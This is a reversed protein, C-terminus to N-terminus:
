NCVGHTLSRRRRRGNNDLAYAVRLRDLPNVPAPLQQNGGLQSTSANSTHHQNVVRFDDISMSPGNASQADVGETRINTMMDAPNVASTSSSPSPPATTSPVITGPEDDSDDIEIVELRNPRPPPLRSTFFGPPIDISTVNYGRERLIGALEQASAPEMSGFCLRLMDVSLRGDVSPFFPMLSEPSSAIYCRAYCGKADNPVMESPNDTTWGAMVHRSFCRHLLRRRYRIDRDLIQYPRWDLLERQAQPTPEIALLNDYRPVLAHCM